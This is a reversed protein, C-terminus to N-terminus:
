IEYDTTRYCDSIVIKLDKYNENELEEKVYKEVEKKICRKPCQFRCADFDEDEEWKGDFFIKYTWSFEVWYTEM